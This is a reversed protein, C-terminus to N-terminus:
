WNFNAPRHGFPLASGNPVTTQPNSDRKLCPHKYGDYKSYKTIKYDSNWINRFKRLESCGFYQRWRLLIKYCYHRITFFVMILTFNAYHISKSVMYNNIKRNILFKYLFVNVFWLIIKISSRWTQITIQLFDLFCGLFLYGIRSYEM